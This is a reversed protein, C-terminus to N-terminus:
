LFLIHATLNKASKQCKFCKLPLMKVNLENVLAILRGWGLKHSPPWFQLLVLGLKECHPLYNNSLCFRLDLHLHSKSHFLIKSNHSIDLIVQVLSIVMCVLFEIHMCIFNNQLDLFNGQIRHFKCSFWIFFSLSSTSESQFFFNIKVRNLLWSSCTLQTDLWCGFHNM